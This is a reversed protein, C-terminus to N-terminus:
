HPLQLTLRAIRTRIEKQLEPTLQQVEKELNKLLTRASEFDNIQILFEATALDDQAARSAKLDIPRIAPTARRNVSPSGARRSPSPTRISIGFTKQQDTIKKLIDTVNSVREMRNLQAYTATQLFEALTEKAQAHQGEDKLMNIITLISEAENMLKILLERDLETAHPTPVPSTRRVPSPRRAPSPARPEPAPEASPATTAQQIEQALEAMTKKIYANTATAEGYVNIYYDIWAQTNALWKRAEEFDKLAIHLRVQEIYGPFKNTIFDEALTIQAQDIGLTQVLEELLNAKEISRVYSPLTNIQERLYVIDHLTTSKSNYLNQILENIAMPKFTPMSYKIFDDRTPLPFSATPTDTLEALMNILFFYFPDLRDPNIKPELTAYIIKLINKLIVREPEALLSPLHRVFLDFLSDIDQREISNNKNYYNNIEESKRQVASLLAPLGEPDRLLTEMRYLWEADRESGPVKQTPALVNRLINMADRMSQRGPESMFVSQNEMFLKQLTGFLNVYASEMEEKTGPKLQTQLDAMQKVIERPTRMAYMNAILHLIATFLLIKKIM